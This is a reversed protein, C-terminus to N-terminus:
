CQLQDANSCFFYLVEHLFDFANSIDHKFIILLCMQLLCM